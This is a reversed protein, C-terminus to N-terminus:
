FPHWPEGHKWAWTTYHQIPHNKDWPQPDSESIAARIFERHFKKLTRVALSCLPATLQGSVEWHEEESKAFESRLEDPLVALMADADSEFYFWAWFYHRADEFVNDPHLEVGLDLEDLASELRERNFDPHLEPAVKIYCLTCPEDIVDDVTYEFRYSPTYHSEYIKGRQLSSVAQELSTKEAQSLNAKADFKVIM